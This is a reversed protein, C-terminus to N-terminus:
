NVGFSHLFYDHPSLALAYATRRCAKRKGPGYLRVHKSLFGMVHHKPNHPLWVGNPTFNIPDPQAHNDPASKKKM